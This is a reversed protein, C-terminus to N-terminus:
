LGKSKGYIYVASHLTLFFCTMLSPLQSSILLLLVVNSLLCVTVDVLQLSISAFKTTTGILITFDRAVTLSVTVYTINYIRM